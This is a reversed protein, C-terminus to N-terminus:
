INHSREVNQVRPMVMYKSKDAHVDLETEKSAFIHAETNEKLAQLRWDVINYEEVYVL